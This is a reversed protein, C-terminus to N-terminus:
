KPPLEPYPVISEIFLLIGDKSMLALVMIISILIISVGINNEKIQKLENMPTLYTFIGIGTLIVFVSLVYSTAIYIGGYLLFSLTLDTTGMHSDSLIRYASLIPQIVGSVIFGISFTLGGIFIQYAMNTAEIKLKHKGYWSLLRFTIFLIVVGCSLASIIQIISLLAIKENM